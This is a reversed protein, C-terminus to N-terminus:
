LLKIRLELVSVKAERTQYASNGIAGILLTGNIRFDVM